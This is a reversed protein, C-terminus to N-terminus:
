GFLINVPLHMTAYRQAMAALNESIAALDACAAAVREPLRQPWLHPTGVVHVGIHAVSCVSEVYARLM